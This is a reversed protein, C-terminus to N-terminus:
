HRRRFALLAYGMMVGLAGYVAANMPALLLFIWVPSPDITMRVFYMPCLSLMLQANLDWRHPAFYAVLALVYFIAAMGGLLKLPTSYLSEDNRERKCAKAIWSRPLVAVMVSFGGVLALAVVFLIWESQFPLDEGQLMAYPVGTLLSILGCLLFAIRATIRTARGAM